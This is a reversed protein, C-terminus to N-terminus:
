NDSDFLKQKKAAWLEAEKQKETKQKTTTIKTKAGNRVYYSSFQLIIVFLSM